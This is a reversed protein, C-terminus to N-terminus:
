RLNQLQYNILNEWLETSLLAQMLNYVQSSNLEIRKYIYCVNKNICSLGTLYFNFILM